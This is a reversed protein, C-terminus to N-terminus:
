GEDYVIREKRSARRMSVVSLAERGLPKFIVTLLRGEFMGIAKSRGKKAEVVTAEAFFEMSVSAFDLGRERLNKARKTEDWVIKM